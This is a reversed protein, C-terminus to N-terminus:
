SCKVEIMKLDTKFGPVEPFEPDTACTTNHATNIFIWHFKFFFEINLNLKSVNFATIKFYFCVSRQTVM